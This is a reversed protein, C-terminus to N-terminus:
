RLTKSTLLGSIGYLEERYQGAFVGSWGECTQRALGIRESMPLQPCDISRESKRHSFELKLHALSTPRARYVLGECACRVCMRWNCVGEGM